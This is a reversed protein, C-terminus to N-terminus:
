QEGTIRQHTARATRISGWSMVVMDDDQLFEEATLLDVKTCPELAKLADALNREAAEARATLSRVRGSVEAPVHMLFENSVQDGIAGGANNGAEILAGRLREVLEAEAGTVTPLALIALIALIRDRLAEDGYVVIKNTHHSSGRSGPTQTIGFSKHDDGNEVVDVGKSYTSMIKGLQQKIHACVDADTTM